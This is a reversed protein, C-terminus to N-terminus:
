KLTVTINGDQIQYVPIAGTFPIMGDGCYTKFAPIHNIKISIGQDDNIQLAWAASSCLFWDGTVWEKAVCDVVTLRDIFVQDNVASELANFLAVAQQASALGAFLTVATFKI